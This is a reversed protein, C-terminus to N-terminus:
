ASVQTQSTTPKRLLAFFFGDAGEVSPLIQRGSSLPQGWPQDIDIIEVAPQRNVFESIQDQNEGPMISCTVYLLLGGEVLLPWLHDLLQRQQQRFGEIDTPRRLLKIDPHRRIVGTGSCPADLLIRDFPTANDQCGLLTADTSSLSVTHNSLGLRQLNARVETMREASVDTATLEIKPETELLHGTKGGPAACADLVRQGPQLDLLGACLQAAEDQVSCSGQHFGPLLDVGVPQTLRLGTTAFQCPSAEIDDAALQTRYPGPESQLRNVRICMPPHQNGAQLTQQWQNPWAQKLQKILWLPHAYNFADNSALKSDITESQRQFNRLVANVLGRAWKKDLRLTASVTQDLVAHDPIRMYQLQYLGILLLARVDMDRSKLGKTLLQELQLNLRPYLRLTGYCLERLLPPHGPAVSLSSKSALVPALIQAAQARVVHGALPNSPRGPKQDSM